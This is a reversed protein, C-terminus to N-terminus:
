LLLNELTIVQKPSRGFDSESVSGNNFNSKKGGNWDTNTEVSASPIMTPMAMTSQSATVKPVMSFNHYDNHQQVKNEPMAPLSPLPPSGIM